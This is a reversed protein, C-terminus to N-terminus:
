GILTRLDCVYARIQLSEIIMGEYCVNERMVRAYDRMDRAYDRMARAYGFMARAYGFMIVRCRDYGAASDMEHSYAEMQRGDAGVSRSDRPPPRHTKLARAGEAAVERAGVTVM